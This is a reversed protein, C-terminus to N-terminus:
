TARSTCLDFSLFAVIQFSWNQAWWSGWRLRGQITRSSSKCIPRGRSEFYELDKVKKWSQKREAGWLISLRRSFHLPSDTFFFDWFTSKRIEQEMYIINFKLDCIGPLDKKINIVKGNEDVWSTSSNACEESGSWFFSVRLFLFPYIQTSFWRVFQPFGM